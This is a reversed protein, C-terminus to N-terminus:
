APAPPPQVASAAEMVWEGSSQDFLVADARGNNGADPGFWARLIPALENRGTEPDELVNIAIKVFRATYRKGSVM